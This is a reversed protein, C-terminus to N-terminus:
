SAEKKALDVTAEPTVEVVADATGEGEEGFMYDQISVYGTDMAEVLSELHERSNVLGKSRLVGDAGILVAFPLKGVEFKMGLELSVVYPYRGTIGMDRAYHLHREPEGGDSAFVLRLRGKESRALAKATPVLSKCIPCTPSVFLIMQAADAAGGVVVEEGHLDAIELQPALEGVKPGSGPMLAGAPAVREHLVGIQRALAFVVFALVIVVFWLVFISAVLLETV